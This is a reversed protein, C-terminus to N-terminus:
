LLGPSSPHSNPPQLSPFTLETHPSCSSSPHLRSPYGPENVGESVGKNNETRGGEAQSCKEKLEPWRATTERTEGDSRRETRGGRPGGECGTLPNLLNEVHLRPHTINEKVDSERRQALNGNAAVPIASMNESRHTKAETSSGSSKWVQGVLGFVETRDPETPDAATHLTQNQVTLGCSSIFTSGVGHHDSNREEEEEEDGEEEEVEEEGEEEEEVEMKVKGDKTREKRDWERRITEEEECGKRRRVEKRIREGRHKGHRRLRSSEERSEKTNEEGRAEGGDGDRNWRKEEESRTHTRRRTAESEEERRKVGQPGKKQDERWMVNKDEEGGGQGGNSKM